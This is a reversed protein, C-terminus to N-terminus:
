HREDIGFNGQDQGSVGEPTPSEPPIWPEAGEIAQQLDHTGGADDLRAESALEDTLQDDPDNRTARDALHEAEPSFPVARDGLLLGESQGEEVLHDDIAMPSEARRLEDVVVQNDADILGLVDTVVHDIIRLEEETGVRGSLTLIGEDVSLTLDDVDFANQARLEQLVYACLEDDSLNEIDDTNDYDDAM